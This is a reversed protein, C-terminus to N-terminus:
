RSSSLVQAGNYEGGKILNGRYLTLHASDVRYVPCATRARKFAKSNYIAILSLSLSLSLNFLPSIEIRSFARVKGVKLHDINM